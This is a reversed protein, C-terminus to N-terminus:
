AGPVWGLSAAAGLHFSFGHADQPPLGFAFYGGWEDRPVDIALTWSLGHMVRAGDTSIGWRPAAAAALRSRLYLAQCADVDGAGSLNCAHPDTGLMAALLTLM